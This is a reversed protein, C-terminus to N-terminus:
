NDVAEDEGSLILQLTSLLNNGDETVTITETPTSKSITNYGLTCASEVTCDSVTFVGAYVGDCVGKDIQELTLGHSKDEQLTRLHCVGWASKKMIVALIKVTESTVKNLDLNM